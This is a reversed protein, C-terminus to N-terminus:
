KLKLIFDKLLDSYAFEVNPETRGWRVGKNYLQHDQTNPKLFIILDKGVFEKYNGEELFAEYKIAANDPQNGKYATILKASVVYVEQNKVANVVHIKAVLDSKAYLDKVLPESFHVSDTKVPNANVSKATDGTSSSQHDPGKCATLFLLIVPLFIFARM